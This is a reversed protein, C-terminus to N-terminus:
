LVKRRLKDLLLAFIFCLLNVIVVTAGTPTELLYSTVLGLLFAIISVIVSYFVVGKFTNSLRMATLTPFIVLSTILLSGLLRMGLVIVVSCIIAFIADYVGTKVGVSKAFQEDFTIAFIRHYSFLYLTIVVM